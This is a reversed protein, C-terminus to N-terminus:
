DVFQFLEYVVSDQSNNYFGFKGGAYGAPLTVEVLHVLTGSADEITIEAQGDTVHLTWQYTSFDAWGPPIAKVLVTTAETGLSAFFDPCELTGAPAQLHKVSVGEFVDATCFDQGGQKWDMLLFDDEGQWGFVFGILDDDDTTDVHFVGTLTGNEFDVDSLLVSPKANKTQTAQTCAEDFTWVAAPQTQGPSEFDIQPWACLSLPVGLVQVTVIDAAENGAGDLVQVVYTTTAAPSVEVGPTNGVVGSGLAFWTWSYVGDGGSAVALLAATEGPGIALDAGASVVLPDLCYGAESVGHECCGETTPAHLCGLAPDCSDATCPEGDDCGPSLDAYQCGEAPDCGLEQTCVDADDCADPAQPLYLCGAPETCLDLTCADGDDCVVLEGKACAGGVCTSPLVCALGDAGCVEGESITGKECLGTTPVCWVSLCAPDEGPDLSCEVATTLDQECHLWPKDDTTLCVVEGLCRNEPPPCDEDKACSCLGSDVNLCGIGEACTDATCPDDDDCALPAAVCAGSVACEGLAETCADGDACSLGVLPEFHCGGAGTCSDLTCTTGDDCPVSDVDGDCDNDVGDCVDAAPEAADCPSLTGGECVRVGPCQGAENSSLCITADALALSALSCNCSGSASRCQGALCGFGSPCPTEPGCAAGCFRAAGGYDLCPAAGCLTDETCPRCLMPAESVCLGGECALGPGCAENLGCPGSCIREGQHWTCPGRQCETDELCAQGPCGSGLCPGLGTDATIEPGPDAPPPVEDAGADVGSDSPPQTIDSPDTPGPATDDGGGGCALGISALAVWM